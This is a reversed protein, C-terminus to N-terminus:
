APAAPAETSGTAALSAARTAYPASTLASHLRARVGAETTPGDGTAAAGGIQDTILKAFGFGGHQALDLAVQQDMLELYQQSQQSDFIGAGGTADRASKLMMGIFLAEFQVAAASLAKPDERAASQKLEALGKIDLANPVTNAM